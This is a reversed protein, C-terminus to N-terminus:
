FISISTIEILIKIFTQPFSFLFNILFNIFNLLSEKIISSIILIIHPSQHSSFISNIFFIISSKSLSEFSFDGKALTAINM